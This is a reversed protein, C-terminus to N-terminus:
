SLCISFFCVDNVGMQLEMCIGADTQQYTWPEDRVESREILSQIEAKNLDTPSDMEQWLRLPNGHDEDVRRLMVSVPQKECELYLQVKEKSLSLNKMKQRFLIIQYDEKSKFAAYGIEGLTADPGLDLRENGADHLMKMAHYVPKPIGHQTLIGFGGHFEQPFPHLEEFIDTFCWISSRM